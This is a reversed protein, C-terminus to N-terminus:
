KAFTVHYFIVSIKFSMKTHFTKKCILKKGNGFDPVSDVIESNQIQHEEKLKLWTLEM